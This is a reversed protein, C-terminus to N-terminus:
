MTHSLGPGKCRNTRRKPVAERRKKAGRNERSRKRRRMRTKLRVKKRSSIGASLAETQSIIHSASYLYCVINLGCCPLGRRGGVKGILL